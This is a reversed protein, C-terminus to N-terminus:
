ESSLRCNKVTGKAQKKKFRCDFVEESKIKGQFNEPDLPVKEFTTVRLPSM